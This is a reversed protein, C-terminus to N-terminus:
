QLITHYNEIPDVTRFITALSDKWFEAAEQILGSAYCLNGVDNRNQIEALTNKSTKNNKLQDYIATYKNIIDKIFNKSKKVQKAEEGFERLM